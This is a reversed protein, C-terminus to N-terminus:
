KSENNVKCKNMKLISNKKTQSANGKTGHISQLRKKDVKERLMERDVQTATECTDVTVSLPVVTLSNVTVDDKEFIEASDICSSGMSSARDSTQEEDKEFNEKGDSSNNKHVEQKIHTINVRNRAPKEERGKKELDDKITILRINQDSQDEEDECNQSLYHIYIENPTKIEVVSCM